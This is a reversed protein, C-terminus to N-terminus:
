IHILQIRLVLISDSKENLFDNLGANLVLNEIIFYGKSNIPTYQSNSFWTIFTTILAKQEFTNRYLYFLHM